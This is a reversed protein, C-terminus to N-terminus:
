LALELVIYKTVYLVNIEVSLNRICFKHNRSAQVSGDKDSSQVCTININVFIYFLCFQSPAVTLYRSFIATGTFGM